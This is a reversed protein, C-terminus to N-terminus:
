GVIDVVMAEAVLVVLGVTAVAVLAMAVAVLFAGVRTVVAVFSDLQEVDLVPQELYVLRKVVGLYEGTRM